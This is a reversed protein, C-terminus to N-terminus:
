AEAEALIITSRPAPASGGRMVSAVGAVILLGGAVTNLGISEDLVVWGLFVAIVPVIYTVLSARVSGVSEILWLWGIYGLGTGLLGLALLSVWADLELSFDPSGGRVTLLIPLTILTGLSTQLIALSVPDSGRLLNRAYVAGAGYCAAAGIIALQGLVSASTVDLVDEGTLVAVGALGLVLGGARAPTMYEDALVAAAILATFIPVMANLISANGSSIHEEGLAILGFPIVNSFLSMVSTQMVLRPTVSLKRRTVLIYGAIALMGFFLRGLVLELPGTDDVIVKIFLFSAGWTCGLALLVPLARGTRADM